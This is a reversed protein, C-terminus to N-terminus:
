HIEIQNRFFFTNTDLRPVADRTTLSFFVDFFVCRTVCRGASWCRRAYVLAFTQAAAHVGDGVEEKKKTCPLFSDSEPHRPDASPARLRWTRFLLPSAAISNELTDETKKARNSLKIVKSAGVGPYSRRRDTPTPAAIPGTVERQPERKIAEITTVSTALFRGLSWRLHQGVMFM